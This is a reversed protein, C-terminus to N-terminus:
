RRLAHSAEERASASNEDGEAQSVSGSTHSLLEFKSSKTIAPRRLYLPEVSMVDVTEGRGAQELALEALWSARRSPLTSTFSAHSGLMEELTAQTTPLWEGSFLVTPESEAAIQEALEGPTLVQYGGLPRFPHNGRPALYQATYVQGRGADLLAWIRVPAVNGTACSACGWGIVDLTSCAYLPLELAYCLSKAAALAVRLGNFSGPGSAVAIATFEAPTLHHTALLWDLRAFLDLSHRRGSDWNLEALLSRQDQVIAISAFSTSTDLALLM